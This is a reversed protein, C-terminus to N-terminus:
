NHQSGGREAPLPHAFSSTIQGCALGWHGWGAQSLCELVTTAEKRRPKDQRQPRMGGNLVMTSIDDVSFMDSVRGTRGTGEGGM